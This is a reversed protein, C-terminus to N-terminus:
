STTDTTATFDIEFVHAVLLWNWDSIHLCFVNALQDCYPAYHSSASFHFWHHSNGCVCTIPTTCFGILRYHDQLGTLPDQVYM